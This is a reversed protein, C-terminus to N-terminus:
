LHNISDTMSCDESSTHSCKNNTKVHKRACPPPHDGRRIHRRSSLLSLNRICILFEDAFEDAYAEWHPIRFLGGPCREGPSKRQWCALCSQRGQAHISQSRTMADQRSRHQGLTSVSWAESRLLDTPEQPEDHEDQVKADQQYPRQGPTSTSRKPFVLNKAIAAPM